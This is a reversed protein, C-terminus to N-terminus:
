ALSSAYAAPTKGMEKAFADGFRRASAFGVRTAVEQVTMGGRALYQAGLRIRLRHIEQLPTRGIAERFRTELTRRSVGFEILLTEVNMPEALHERIFRLVDNVLADGVSIRDTSEREIVGTPQLVIDDDCTGTEILQHLRHAAEWGIKRYPVEVSSLTPKCMLCIGEDNGAAIIAVDNPVTLGLRVAPETFLLGTYDDWTFLGVPKPLDSIWDRSRQSASAWDRDLGPKYGYDERHYENSVYGQARLSEVFGRQRQNAARSGSYGVKAFKAWGREMLHQAALAGVAAQDLAVTPMAVQDNGDVALVVPVGEANLQEALMQNDGWFVVGDPGWRLINEATDIEETIRISWPLAPRLYEYLGQLFPAHARRINPPGTHPVMVAIRKTVEAPTNAPPKQM